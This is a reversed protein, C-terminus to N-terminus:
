ESTGGVDAFNRRSRWLEEFKGFKLKGSTEVNKGLTGEVEGFNERCLRVGLFEGVEGFKGSFECSNSSFRWVEWLGILNGLTGGVKKSIVGVKGFKGWCKRLEKLKGSTKRAEGFRGARFFEWSNGM